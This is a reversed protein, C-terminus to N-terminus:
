NTKKLNSKLRLSLASKSDCIAERKVKAELKLSDKGATKFVIHAPRYIKDIKHKELDKWDLTLYVDVASDQKIKELVSVAQGSLVLVNFFCLLSLILSKM